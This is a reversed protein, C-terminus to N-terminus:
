REDEDAIPLAINHLYHSQCYAHRVGPFVKAVAPWLGSQKDSLIASVSLGLGAIPQLFRVFAAEDQESMWGCRLTVGSVIERVMWLQPEGGEPALGDLSLLLGTRQAVMKVREMQQRDHCALLPLYREHYLSRVQSESIKVRQALNLQISEFSMKMQQRWWGIQGIM